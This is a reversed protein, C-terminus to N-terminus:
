GITIAMVFTAVISGRTSVPSIESLYIPVIMSAIGIGLGVIIRGFMLIKISDTFAMVLSGVTFLIDSFIIVLKRGFKDSIPGAILSGLFAGFLALSVVFERELLTM